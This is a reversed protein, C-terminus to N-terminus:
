WSHTGHCTCPNGEGARHVGIGGEWLAVTGPRVTSRYVQGDAGSREISRVSPGSNMCYFNSLRWWHGCTLDVPNRDDPTEPAPVAAPYTAIPPAVPEPARAVPPPTPVYRQVSPPSAFRQQLEPFIPGPNPSSYWKGAQPRALPAYPLDDDDPAPSGWRPVPPAYRVFPAVTPAYYEPARPPSATCGATLLLAAGAILPVACGPQKRPGAKGVNMRVVLAPSYFRRGRLSHLVGCRARYGVCRRFLTTAPRAGQNGRDGSLAARDRGAASAPSCRRNLACSVPDKV